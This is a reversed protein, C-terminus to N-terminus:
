FLFHLFRRGVSYGMKERNKDDIGGVGGIVASEIGQKSNYWDAKRLSCAIKELEMLNPLFIMLIM